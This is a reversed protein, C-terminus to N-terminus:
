SALLLHNEGSAISCESLLQCEFHGAPHPLHALSWLTKCVKYSLVAMNMISDTHVSLKHLSSTLKTMTLWSGITFHNWTKSHKRHALSRGEAVTGSPTLHGSTNPAGDHTHLVGFPIMSRVFNCVKICSWLVSSQSVGVIEFIRVIGTSGETYHPTVISAPINMNTLLLNTTCPICYSIIASLLHSEAIVTSRKDIISTWPIPFDTHM